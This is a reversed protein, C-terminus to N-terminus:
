QTIAEKHYEQLLARAAARNDANVSPERRWPSAPHENRAIDQDSLAAIEGLLTVGKQRVSATNSFLYCRAAEYKAAVNHRYFPNLAAMLMNGMHQGPMQMAGARLTEQYILWDFYYAEESSAEDRRPPTRRAEEIIIKLQRLDDEDGGAFDAYSTALESQWWRVPYHDPFRLNESKARELGLRLFTRYIHKMAENVGYNENLQIQLAMEQAANTAKALMVRLEETSVFAAAAVRSHLAVDELFGQTESQVAALSLAANSTVNV